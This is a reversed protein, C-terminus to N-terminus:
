QCPRGSSWVTSWSRAVPGHVALTAAASESSWSLPAEPRPPSRMSSRRTAEDDRARCARARGPDVRGANVRTGVSEASLTVKVLSAHPGLPPESLLMITVGVGRRQAASFSADLLGSEEDHPGILVVVSGTPQGPPEPGALSAVVVPAASLGTLRRWPSLAAPGCRARQAWSRGVVLLRADESAEASVDLPRGPSLCATAHLEPAMENVQKLAWVLVRLGAEEFAGARHAFTQGTVRVRAIRPSLASVPVPHVVRLPAGLSAAEAAAWLLADVDRESTVEVVVSWDRHGRSPPSSLASPRATIAPRRPRSRM